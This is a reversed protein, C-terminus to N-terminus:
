QRAVDVVTGDGDLRVSLTDGDLPLDVRARVAGDRELTATAAVDLLFAEPPRERTDIGHEWCFGAVAPHRLVCQAATSWFTLGCRECDFRALVIDEAPPPDPPGDRAPPRDPSPLTTEAPGRCHPCEGRLARETYDNLEHVALALVEDPNRGDVVGAPLTVGSLPGHEPCMLRFYSHEYAATLDNGCEPCDYETPERWAPADGSYIGSLVAGAVAMGAPTLHYHEGQQVVFQPQLEDLHYSFRGADTVGVAKRLSAFRRGRWQWAVRRDDALELVVRLRLEHGLAEFADVAADSTM